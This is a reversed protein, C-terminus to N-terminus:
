SPAIANRSCHARLTRVPAIMPVCMTEADAQMQKPYLPQFGFRRTYYQVLALESRVAELMPRKKTIYSGPRRPWYGSAEILMDDDDDLNVRTLVVCLALAAIGRSKPVAVPDFHNYFSSMRWIGRVAPRDEKFRYSTDWIIRIATPDTDPYAAKGRLFISATIRGPGTTIQVSFHDRLPIDDVGHHKRTRRTPRTQRTQRNTKRPRASM